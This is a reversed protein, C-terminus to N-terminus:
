RGTFNPKRKEVFSMFAEMSDEASALLALANVEDHMVRELTSDLSMQLQRKHMGYVRTPGAALRASWEEALPILDAAPVLRNIMGLALAEEAPIAEAFFAKEKAQVMSMTRPLIYSGAAEMPLGRAAFVEQFRAEHSAIVLDSYLALQCGFGVAWGNVASIIPKECEWMMRIIHHWGWRMNSTRDHLPNTFEGEVPSPFYRKSIDAGSCFTAGEGTIVVCRIDPNGRCHDLAALLEDRMPPHVANMREPRNLTLWATKDRVELTLFKYDSM